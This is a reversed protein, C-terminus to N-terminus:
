CVGSLTIPSRRARRAAHSFLSGGDVLGSQRLKQDLEGDRDDKTAAASIREHAHALVDQVIESMRRRRRNQHQFIAWGPHALRQGLLDDFGRLGFGGFGSEIVLQHLFDTLNKLVVGPHALHLLDFTDVAFRGAIRHFGIAFKSRKTRALVVM